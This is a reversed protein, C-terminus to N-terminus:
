KRESSNALQIAESVPMFPRPIGRRSSWRARDTHEESVSLFLRGKRLVYGGNGHGPESPTVVQYDGMECTLAHRAWDFGLEHEAKVNDQTFPGGMNGITCRANLGARYSIASVMVILGLFFLVSLVVRVALRLAKM